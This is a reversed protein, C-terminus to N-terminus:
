AVYAHLVQGRTPGEKCGPRRSDLSENRGKKAKLELVKKLDAPMHRPLLDSPVDRLRPTFNMFKKLEKTKQDTSAKGVGAQFQLRHTIKGDPSKMRGVVIQDPFPPILTSPVVYGLLQPSSELIEGDESDLKKCDLICTVYYHLNLQRQANRLADLIAQITKVSAKGEAFGNHAGKDTLCETKWVATGMVLQELESLGDIVILKFGAAKIGEVDALITLIRKYAADQGLLNGDDDIDVCVDIINKDGEIKASAVGHDERKLYLYLTKEGLTGALYSKGSSSPGLVIASLLTPRAAKTVALKEAKNFDFGM